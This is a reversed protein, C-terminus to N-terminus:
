NLQPHLTVVTLMWAAFVWRERKTSAAAFPSSTTIARALLGTARNTGNSAALFGSRTSPVMAPWNVIGSSKSAGRCVWARIWLPAFSIMNLAALMQTTAM